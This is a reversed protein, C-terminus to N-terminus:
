ILCRKNPKTTIVFDVITRYSCANSYRLGINGLISSALVKLYTRAEDNQNEMFIYTWRYRWIVFLEIVVKFLSDLCQRRYKM